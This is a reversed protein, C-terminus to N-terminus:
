RAPQEVLFQSVSAALAAGVARYGATTSRQSNWITELCLSVTHPNGNM